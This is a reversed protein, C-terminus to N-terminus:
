LPPPFLSKRLCVFISLITELLGVKCSINQTQTQKSKLAMGTAYPLEWALPRISAVAALRHWLWLLVLDLRRRRGVGCSVM